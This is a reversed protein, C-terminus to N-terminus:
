IRVAFFCDFSKHTLRITRSNWVIDLGYRNFAAFDERNHSEGVVYNLFHIKATKHDYVVINASIPNFELQFNHNVRMKMTPDQM